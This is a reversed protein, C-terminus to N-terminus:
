LEVMGDFREFSEIKHVSDSLIVVYKGLTVDGEREKAIVIPSGWKKNLIIFQAEQWTPLDCEHRDLINSLWEPIQTKIDDITPLSLMSDKNLIKSLGVENVKHIAGCNPCQAYSTKVKATEEELESFVIFKHFPSNPLKRFQPLICKCEVLHKIYQSM